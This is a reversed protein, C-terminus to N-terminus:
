TQQSSNKKLQRNKASLYILVLGLLFVGSMLWQDTSLGLYQFDTSLSEEMFSVLFYIVAFGAIVEGAIRGSLDSKLLKKKYVYALIFLILCSLSLYIQTPHRAIGITTITASMKGDATKSLAYKIPETGSESVYLPHEFLYTKVDGIIFETAEREEIGQKFTLHYQIQKQGIEKLMKKEGKKVQVDVLPNPGDPNRMMCCKLDMLGDTVPRIFVTGDAADTARGMFDAGIFNSLFLLAGALCSAIVIQDLLYFFDSDKLVFRNFLWVGVVLGLIGLPLSLHHPGVFSLSPKLTVPFIKSLLDQSVNKKAYFINDGWRAVCLAVFVVGLVLYEVKSTLKDPNAQKLTLSKIVLLVLIFALIILAAYWYLHISGNSYIESSGNWLFYDAM